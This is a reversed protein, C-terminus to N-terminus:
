VRERHNICKRLGMHFSLSTEWLQLRELGLLLNNSVTLADSSVFWLRKCACVLAGRSWRMLYFVLQPFFIGRKKYWRRTTVRFCLSWAWVYKLMFYKTLIIDWSAMFLFSYFDVATVCPLFMCGKDWLAFAPSQLCINWCHFSTCTM